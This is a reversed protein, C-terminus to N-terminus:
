KELEKILADACDVIAKTLKERINPIGMNALMGQMAMAAFYERKTLGGSIWKIDSKDEEWVEHTPFAPESGVDALERERMERGGKMYEHIKHIMDKTLFIMDGSDKSIISLVDDEYLIGVDQGIDKYEGM